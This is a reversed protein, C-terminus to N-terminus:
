GETHEKCATSCFMNLENTSSVLGKGQCCLNHVENNCDSAYCHHNLEFDFVCGEVTCKGKVLVRGNADKVTRRNRGPPPKPGGARRLQQQRTPGGVPRGVHITGGGVDPLGIAQIRRQEAEREEMEVDVEAQVEMEISRAREELEPALTLDPLGGAGVSGGEGDGELIRRVQRELEADIEDNDGGDRRNRSSGDRRMSVSGDRRTASANNKQRKPYKPNAKAKRKRRTTQKPNNKVAAEPLFSKDLETGKKLITSYRTRNCWTALKWGLPATASGKFCYSVRNRLFEVCREYYSDIETVTMGITQRPLDKLVEELYTFIPKWQLKFTDKLAKTPFDSQQLRRFPCVRLKGDESVTMGHLWLRLGEKLTAKPFEFTKPVSFFQGDYCFVNKLQQESINVEDDGTDGLLGELHADLEGGYDDNRGNNMGARIEDKLEQLRGNMQQISDTKFEELIQLLRDGTVHGSEWARNEIATNIAIVINESQSEFSSVLHALKDLVNNMQTALHIHPPIGTPVTMIEETPETTVMHKLRNMLPRDHLLPLKSFDHGQHEVMVTILHNSHYVICALCRLLIPIPGDVINRYEELIPGYMMQMGSKIDDNSMPDAMTWHPPLTSFSEHNPDYGALIRGLYHDGVSGFHWYVDLVSGISWEGRRAVSPISPPATTGSVALTAAGKRFGYPNFSSARMFNQITSLHPEVIGALQECYLTSASGEKSGKSLFLRENGIWKEGRLSAWIGFGTWFCQRWDISNAYINKESLREGAKDAKADDYKCIISDAGLSFNHFALPDVSASRAMCNWQSVTWFWVLVNNEAIAWDLIKKYVNVPIPDASVEEAIGNKKGKAFEKRYGALFSDMKAYFETNLQEDRIQAGWMIADKYKRMDGWSRLKGDKKLKISCLFHIVWQYMLGKYRLDLKYRGFFFLNPDELEEQTVERVAMEYYSPCDTKWFKAIRMLRCRYDKRCNDSMTHRVTNTYGENYSAPLPIDAGLLPASDDTNRQHPHIRGARNNRTTAAPMKFQPISSLYVVPPINKM